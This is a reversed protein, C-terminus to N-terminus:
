KAKATAIDAAPAAAPEPAAPEPAPPEGLKLDGNALLREVEMTRDVYNGLGGVSGGGPIPLPVKRRAGVTVFIKEYKFM